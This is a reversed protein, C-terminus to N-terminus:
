SYNENRFIYPLARRRIKSRIDRCERLTFEGEPIINKYGNEEKIYLGDGNDTTAFIFEHKKVKMPYEKM